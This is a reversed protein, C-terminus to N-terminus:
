VSQSLQELVATLKIEGGEATICAMVSRRSRTAHQKQLVKPQHIYKDSVVASGYASLACALVHALM